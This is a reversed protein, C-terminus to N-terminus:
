LVSKTPAGASIVGAPKERMLANIDKPDKNAPLFWISGTKKDQQLRDIVYSSLADHHNKTNRMIGHHRHLIANLKSNDFYVSVSVRKDKGILQLVVEVCNQSMHLYFDAKYAERTENFLKRRSIMFKFSEETSDESRVKVPSTNETFEFLSKLYIEISEM